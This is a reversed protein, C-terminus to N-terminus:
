QSFNFPTCQGGLGRAIACTNHEMMGIYTGKPTGKAGLGDALLEEESLKVKAEKAVTKLVKDNATVEAFVVPIGQKKISETLSKVKSATPEEETSVGLLTDTVTLGYANAYYGLADHTTILRRQSQPITAIQKPIWADLAKLRAEYADANKSYETANGPDIKALNTEILQVMGITNNADHWVHPDTETKGDEVLTLKKSTALDHLAIKPSTTKTAEVMSAIAPDFNLGAYFVVDAQEIAQRDLPKGEYTHPDQDPDILCNLNVKDKAVEEVLNCLVSHSAVVKPATKTTATAPSATTTTSLNDTNEGSQTRSGSECGSVGIITTLLLGSWFFHMKNQVIGLM